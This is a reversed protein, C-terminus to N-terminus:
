PNMGRLVTGDRDVVDFFYKTHRGEKEGKNTKKQECEFWTVNGDTWLSGCIHTEKIQRYASM